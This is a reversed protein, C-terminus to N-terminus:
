SQPKVEFTALKQLILWSGTLAQAEEWRKVYGEFLATSFGIDGHSHSIAPKDEGYPNESYCKYAKLIEQFHSYRRQPFTDPLLMELQDQSLATAIGLITYDGNPLIANGTNWINLDTDYALDGAPPDPYGKSIRFNSADPAVLIALFTTQGIQIIEIKSM